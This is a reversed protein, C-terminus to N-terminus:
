DMLSGEGIMLEDGFKDINHYQTHDWIDEDVKKREKKKLQDLRTIPSYYDNSSFLHTNIFYKFPM